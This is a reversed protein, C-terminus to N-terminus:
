LKLTYFPLCCRSCRAPYQRQWTRKHGTKGFAIQVYPSNHTKQNNHTIASQIRGFQGLRSKTYETRHTVAILYLRHGCQEVWDLNACDITRVTNPHGWQRTPAGRAIVHRRFQHNLVVSLTSRRTEDDGLCSTDGYFATAPEIRSTQPSGLMDPM